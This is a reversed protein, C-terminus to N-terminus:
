PVAGPPQHGGRRRQRRHRRRAPLAAGAPRGARAPATAGTASACRSGATTRWSVSSTGTARVRQRASGAERDVVEDGDAVTVAPLAARPDQVLAAAPGRLVPEDPHSDGGRVGPGLQPRDGLRHARRAGSGRPGPGDAGGSSAAERDLLRESRHLLERLARVPHRRLEFRELVRLGYIVTLEAIEASRSGTATAPAAGCSSSGSGSGDPSPPSGRRGTGGLCSRPDPFPVAQVVPSRQAGAPLPAPYRPLRGARAPDCLAEAQEYATGPVVQRGGRGALELGLGARVTATRASSPRVAGPDHDATSFGVVIPRTRSPTSSIRGHANGEDRDWCGFGSPDCSGVVAPAPPM